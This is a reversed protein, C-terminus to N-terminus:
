STLGVPQPLASRRIGLGTPGSPNEWPGSGMRTTPRPTDIPWAGRRGLSLFRVSMDSLLAPPLTNTQSSPPTRYPLPSPTASKCPFTPLPPLTFFLSHISTVFFIVETSM